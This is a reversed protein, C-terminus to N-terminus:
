FVLITRALKYGAEEKARIAEETEKTAAQIKATEKKLTTIQGKLVQVTRQLDKVENVHKAKAQTLREVKDIL